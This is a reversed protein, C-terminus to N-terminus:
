SVNLSLTVGDSLFCSKQVLGIKEVILGIKWKAFNNARVCLFTPVSGVQKRRIKKGALKLWDRQWIRTKARAFDGLPFYAKSGALIIESIRSSILDNQHM